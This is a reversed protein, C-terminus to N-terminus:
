SPGVEAVRELSQGVDGALQPAHPVFRNTTPRLSLAASQRDALATECYTGVLRFVLGLASMPRFSDVQGTSVRL